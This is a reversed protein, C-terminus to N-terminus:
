VNKWSLYRRFLYVYKCVTIRTKIRKHSWSHSVGLIDLPYVNSWLIVKHFGSTLQEYNIKSLEGKKVCVKNTKRYGSMCVCSFSGPDNLCKENASCPTEDESCEDKDSIFMVICRSMEEFCSEVSLASKQEPPLPPPPPPHRHLPCASRWIGLSFNRGYTRSMEIEKIFCFWYPWLRCKEVRM